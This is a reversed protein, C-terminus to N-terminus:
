TLRKINLRFALRHSELIYCLFNNKAIFRCTMNEIVNYYHSLNIWTADELLQLLHDAFQGSTIHVFGTPLFISYRSNVMIEDSTTISVAMGGAENESEKLLVEDAKVGRSKDRVVVSRQSPCPQTSPTQRM